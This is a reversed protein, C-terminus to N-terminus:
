HSSQVTSSPGQSFLCLGPSMMHMGPEEWMFSIRVVQVESSLFVAVSPPFLSMLIKYVAVLNLWFALGRLWLFWRVAVNQYKLFMQQIGIILLKATGVEGTYVQKEEIEKNLSRM